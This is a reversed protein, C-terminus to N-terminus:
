GRMDTLPRGEAINRLLYVLPTDVAAALLKVVVQGLILSGIAAWSEIGGFAVAIFITSNLIQSVMTSLNNRLWLRNRGMDRQRLHHFILVDALASVFFAVLGAFNTRIGSSFVSVFEAQREATWSPAASVFGAIDELHMAYLILVAMVFRMAVGTLVVCLAYGRGWVESIVDTALYTFCFALTGAPVLVDLPGLHVVQVKIATLAAMVLSVMFLGTCFFLVFAKRTVREPNMGSFTDTDGM